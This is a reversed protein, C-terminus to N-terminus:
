DELFLSDLFLPSCTSAVQIMLLVALLIGLRANKRIKMNADM